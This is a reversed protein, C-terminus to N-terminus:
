SSRAMKIWVLNCLHQRGWLLQINLQGNQGSRFLQKPMM